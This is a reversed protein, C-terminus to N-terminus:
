ALGEDERVMRIYFLTVITLIVFLAMALAGALGFEFGTFAERWTTISLVETSRAPGGQTMVYVQDFVKFDWITSIVTLVLLLPKLLPLTVYRMRQWANAGDIRAAELVEDPVSQLGALMSITVFPFSGWVVVTGIAVFAPIRSVFWAHGDFSEFGLTVLLWNVVGYQDNYMWQWVTAAAVKPMAWPLLLLLTLLGRGRRPQNLLFAAGVGLVMTGIVCAFGFVATTIFVQQYLPDTAVTEYNDLGVFNSSGGAIAALDADRFSLWLTRVIPYGVLGFILVFAPGLLLWPLIRNDFRNRWSRAPTAEEDPGADGPESSGDGAADPRRPPRPRTTTTDSM